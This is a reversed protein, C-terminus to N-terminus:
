KSQFDWVIKRDSITEIGKENLFLAFIETCRIIFDYTGDFNNMRVEIVSPISDDLFNSIYTYNNANCTVLYRKSLPDM